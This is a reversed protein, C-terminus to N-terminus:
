WCTMKGTVANCFLETQETLESADSLLKNEIVYKFYSVSMYADSDKPDDKHIASASDEIEYLYPDNYLAPLLRIGSYTMPLCIVFAAIMYVLARFIERIKQRYVFVPVFILLVATMVLVALYGTRSLTLFLLSVAIGYLLFTGWLDAPCSNKADKKRLPKHKMGKANKTSNQPMGESLKVFLRVTLVCLVLTLYTATITVTHFVFNYRSYVWARFPRRAFAFVVALAFNLM